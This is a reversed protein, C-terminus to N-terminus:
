IHKQQDVCNIFYQKIDESVCSDTILSIIVDYESIDYRSMLENDIMNICKIYDNRVKVLQDTSTEKLNM